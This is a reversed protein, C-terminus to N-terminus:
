NMFESFSAEKPFWNKITSYKEDTGLIEGKLNQM